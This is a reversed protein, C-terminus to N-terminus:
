IQRPLALRGPLRILADHVVVLVLGGRPGRADSQNCRIAAPSTAVAHGGAHRPREPMVSRDAASMMVEAGNLAARLRCTGHQPEPASDDRRVFPNQTRVVRVAM